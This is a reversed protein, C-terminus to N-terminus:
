EEEEMILSINSTDFDGIHLFMKIHYLLDIYKEHISDYHLLDYSMYYHCATHEQKQHQDSSTHLFHQSSNLPQLDLSVLIGLIDEQRRGYLMYHLYATDGLVRLIIQYMYQHYNKYTDQLVFM